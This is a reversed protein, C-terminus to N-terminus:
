EDLEVEHHVLEILVDGAENSALASGHWETLGEAVVEDRMRKRAPRERYFVGLISATNDHPCFHEGPETKTVIWVSM